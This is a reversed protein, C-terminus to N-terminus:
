SLLDRAAQEVRERVFTEDLPKPLTDARESAEDAIEQAQRAAEEQAARLVATVQGGLTREGQRMARPDIQLRTVRGHGDAAAEILGDSSVARGRVQRIATQADKIGRIVERSKQVYDAVYEADDEPAPPRM